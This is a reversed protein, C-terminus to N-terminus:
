VSTDRGVRKECIHFGQMAVCTALDIRMLNTKGCTIGLGIRFPVTQTLCETVEYMIKASWTVEGEISVLGLDAPVCQKIFVQSFVLNIVM